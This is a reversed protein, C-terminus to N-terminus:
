REPALGVGSPSMAGRWCGRFPLQRSIQPSEYAWGGWTQRCGALVCSVHAQLEAAPAKWVTASSTPAGNDGSVKLRCTLHSKHRCAQLKHKQFSCRQFIRSAWSLFLWSKFVKRRGNEDKFEM